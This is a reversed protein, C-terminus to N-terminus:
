LWEVPILKLGNRWEEAEHVSDVDGYVESDAHDLVIAQWMGKQKKICASLTSFMKKVAASDEDSEFRPDIEDGSLSGGKSRRPFYVQSPQDFIVFSPVPSNKLGLFFEQLACMLAIHFSVWNSASGVEGLYHWNNDNSLVRITLDKVDFRPAVRQYKDELDLTQLYALILGSVVHTANELRQQVGRIDAIRSLEKLEAELKRIEVLVDGTNNLKTFYEFHTKFQGIFIFMSQRRQFQAQAEKDRAVLLDVRDQLVRRHELLRTLETRWKEEERAFSTPVESVRRADNELQLFASAIKGVEEGSNKHELSGCTPCPQGDSSAMSKIWQSIHLRDRRRRVSNGYDMLGSKLRGIDSLKKKATAIEISIEREIVELRELEKNSSDINKVTTQIRSPNRDLLDKAIEVLEDTPTSELIEQELLGYEEALKLNSQLNSLWNESVVKAKEYEKRLRNLHRETEAMKNRAVLIEFNEAGLIYPFWNKLKERHEHSHMKYFLVNQNAVIDQSQFCFAMLDRFSLRGQFGNIDDDSGLGLYPVGSIGNLIHKISDLRENAEITTPIEDGIGRLLFFENSVTNGQPVRRCILLDEIATRVQIGYWSANDRITDIPISCEGSGLCYDIIPIIASKGTRSAGTIVNVVGPEFKVIRPAVSEKKPWVVLRIIQLQM